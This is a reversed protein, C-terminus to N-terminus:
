HGGDQVARLVEVLAPAAALSAAWEFVAPAVGAPVCSSDEWGKTMRYRNDLGERLHPVAPHTNGASVQCGPGARVPNAEKEM